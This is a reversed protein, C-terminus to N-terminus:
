KKEESNEILKDGALKDIGNFIGQQSISKYQNLKCYDDINEKLLRIFEKDQTEVNEFILEIIRHNESETYVGQLIQKLLERSKSLNFETTM